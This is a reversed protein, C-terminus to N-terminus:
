CLSLRIDKDPNDTLVPHSTEGLFKLLRYQDAQFAALEIILCQETQRWTTVRNLWLLHSRTKKYSATLTTQLNQGVVQTDAVTAAYYHIDTVPTINGFNM